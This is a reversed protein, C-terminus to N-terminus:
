GAWSRVRGLGGVTNRRLSEDDILVLVVESRQAPPPALRFFSDALRLESDRVVPIVSFAVVLSLVLLSLAFREAWMGLLPNHRTMRQVVVPSFIPQNM